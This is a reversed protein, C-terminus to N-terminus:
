LTISHPQNQQQKTSAPFDPIKKTIKILARYKTIWAGPPCSIATSQQSSIPSDGAPPSSLRTFSTPQSSDLNKLLISIATLQVHMRKAGTMGSQVHWIIKQHFDLMCQKSSIFVSCLITHVPLSVQWLCEEKGWFNVHYCPSIGRRIDM